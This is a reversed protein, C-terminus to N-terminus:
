KNMINKHMIIRNGLKCINKNSKISSIQLNRFYNFIATKIKEANHNEHVQNQKKVEVNHNNLV